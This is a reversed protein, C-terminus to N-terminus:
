RELIFLQVYILCTNLICSTNKARMIKTFAANILHSERCLLRMQTVPYQSNDLFCEGIELKKLENEDNILKLNISIKNIDVWNSCKKVIYKWPLKFTGVNDTFLM